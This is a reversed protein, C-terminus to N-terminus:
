QGGAPCHCPALTFVKMSSTWSTKGLSPGSLRTSTWGWDTSARLWTFQRHSAHMRRWVDVLGHSRVLQRLVQQSVPHPEIHNRDLVHDETCNFDGGLILLDSSSLNNLVDNIKELFLKREAGNNPAYINIFVVTLHSFAAKVLLCRGQVVHEVTVAVPNFSRSFLIGVGASVATSHSLFVGGEWERRWDTENSDSSHTEQLFLVDIRKNKATEYAKARKRAERAGNINLSGVKFNNMLFTLPRFSRDLITSEALEPKWFARKGPLRSAKAGVEALEDKRKPRKQPVPTWAAEQEM